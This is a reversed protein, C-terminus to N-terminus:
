RDGERLLAGPDVRGQTAVAGVGALVSAGVVLGLAVAWHPLAPNTPDFTGTFPALDLRDGLLLAVVGALVVGVTAAGAVLPVVEALLSLRVRGTSTGLAALVAAQRRREPAGALLAMLLATATALLAAAAAVLYGLRVGRSLPAMRLEERVEERVLVDADPDTERASAVVAAVDQTRVLRDTVGIEVGTVAEAAARDLLVFPGDVEEIRGLAARSIGAVRGAVRDRRDLLVSLEDGVGPGGVLEFESSVLLPAAGTGDWTLDPLDAGIGSAALQAPDVLVVDLRQAQNGVAVSGSAEERLEAVADDPSPPTWATALSALPQADIRVDAGVREQAARDQGDVLTRHVATALGAVGLGLVLLVVLVGAGGARAARALGVPVAMSRGRRAVVALARLPLPAVRAAVVAAAAALLVPAAVVLPDATGDVTIGRRRLSGVAIAAVLVLLADIVLHEPQTTTRRRREALLAGLRRRLDRGSGVVLVLFVLLGVAAVLTLDDGGGPLVVGLVVAAVAVGVAAVAGFEALAAAVLQARSAGRGRTLALAERRRLALVAVMAVVLALAIGLVAAAALGLVEVATARRAGERALLRDLGTSWRPDDLQLPASTRLSIAAQEVAAIDSALLAERDLQWRVELGVPVVDETAPFEGLAAGPLLGTAFITTSSNTDYRSARHVRPDGFWVPDDVPSLEVIGALEWVIVANRALAVRRLVPGSNDPLGIRRDGVEMALEEATAATALFEHVTVPTAVPEGDQDEQGLQLELQEVEGDPARGDVLTAATDADPQFRVTLKRPFPQEEEGPLSALDYRVTDVVVTPPDLVGRLEDDLEETRAAALGALQEQTREPVATMLEEISSAALGARDATTDQVARDLSAIALRDLLRPVAGVLGATLAVVVVLVVLLGWDARWRRLLMGVGGM